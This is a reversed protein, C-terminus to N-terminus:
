VRVFEKILEVNQTFNIFECRQKIGDDIASVISYQKTDCNFLIYKNNYHNFYVKYM